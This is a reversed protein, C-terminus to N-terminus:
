RGSAGPAIGGTPDIAVDFPREYNETRGIEQGDRDLKVVTDAAQDAVWVGQDVPDAALAIPGRFGAAVAQREITGQIRYREVTGDAYSSLWLDGTVPDLALGIPSAVPAIQRGITGDPLIELVAGAGYDAVWATTDAPVAILGLPEALGTARAVVALTSDLRVAEGRERDIVWGSGDALGLALDAPAGFDEARGRETGDPALRVVIGAVEDAVWIVSGDGAIAISEPSEFGTVTVAASGASDIAVVRGRFTDTVWVRHDAPNVAAAVPSVLGRVRQAVSRGDPSLRLLTGAGTDVVWATQPGPTALVPGTAAISDGSVLFPLLRYRYETGDTLGLDHYSGAEAGFSAITSEPAAAASRTLHFGQLDAFPQVQWAIEVRQHGAVARLQWPDGHTDPNEPDLPNLHQRDSCGLVVGALVLVFVLVLTRARGRSLIAM